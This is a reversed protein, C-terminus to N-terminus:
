DTIPHRGIMGNVLMLVDNEDWELRPPDTDREDTELEPPFPDPDGHYAGDFTM